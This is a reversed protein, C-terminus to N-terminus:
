CEDIIARIEALVEESPRFPTNAVEAEAALIAAEEAVTFGNSTVQRVSLLVLTSPDLDGRLALPLEGARIPKDIIDSV